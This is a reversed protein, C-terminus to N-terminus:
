LRGERRGTEYFAECNALPTLPPLNNGERLIFRGGELVGSRLIRITEAVLPGPSDQIFYSVAPGGALTVDPGMQRRFRAFDVPFGTDYGTVELEELLIPFHRQADGCLHMGRDNLTGFEEYLRGHLPLVFERYQEVSLLEVSDDATSFGDQPAPMDLKTRWAKMRRRLSEHLFALLNHAYDPDELLDMCFQTPGRLSCAATFVGDTNHLSGRPCPEVPVGLFTWGAARKREWDAAIALCREAWEGGFPEPIGRDFLLNKRDGALLPETDPVQGDRWAVPAGFWAADYINEFDIYVAWKEPMGHAHDGPLLFRMWYQFELQGQGMVGADLMYDRYTVGRPNYKPDLMLVRANCGLVIPVRSHRGAPFAKWLAATEENHETWDRRGVVELGPLDFLRIGDDM